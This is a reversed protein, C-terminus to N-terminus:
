KEQDELQMAYKDAARAFRRALNAQKELPLGNDLFFVILALSVRQSEKVGKLKYSDDVRSVRERKEIIARHCDLLEALDECRGAHATSAM